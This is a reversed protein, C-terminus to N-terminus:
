WTMGWENWCKGFCHQLVQFATALFAASVCPLVTARLGIPLFLSTMNPQAHPKSSLFPFLPLLLPPLWSSFPQLLSSSSSSSFM